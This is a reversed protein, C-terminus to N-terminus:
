GWDDLRQDWDEPREDYGRDSWFTDSTPNMQNSRNDNEAKSHDNGSYRGM